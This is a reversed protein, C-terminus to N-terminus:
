LYTFLYVFILQLLKSISHKTPHAEKALVLSANTWEPITCQDISNKASFVEQASGETDQLGYQSINTKGGSRGTQQMWCWYQYQHQSYRTFPWTGARHAGQPHRKADADGYRISYWTTITSYVCLGFFIFLLARVCCGVVGPDLRRCHVGRDTVCALEAVPNPFSSPVLRSDISM